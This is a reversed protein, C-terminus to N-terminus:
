QAASGTGVPVSLTRACRGRRTAFMASPSVRANSMENHIPNLFFPASMVAAGRLVARELSEFSPARSGDPSDVDTGLLYASGSGKM